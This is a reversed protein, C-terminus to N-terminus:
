VAAIVGGIDFEGLSDRWGIRTGGSGLRHGADGRGARV